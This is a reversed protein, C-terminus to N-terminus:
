IVDAFGGRTRQFWALGLWAVLSGAGLFLILGAVDPVTADLLVRRAQEIPFTLPNLYLLWRFREPVSSAEYFVPSLFMLGTTFLGAAQSVDRVFVGLSSLIWTVGLTCLILPLLIVPLWLVTWSPAGRIFVHFLLWVVFSITLHFLASGITMWALTELPFVIKKVFNPNSLVLTTSRNVCEAFFNFVILGIFFTLVFEATGGARSWKSQLIEGFVLTYISLMILPQVLSWFVGFFSGRYRGMVDRKVLGKILQRRQWFSLM